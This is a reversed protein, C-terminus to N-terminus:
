VVLTRAFSLLNTNPPVNFTTLFRKKGFRDYKLRAAFKEPGVTKIKKIYNTKPDEEKVTEKKMIVKLPARGPFIIEQLALTNVNNTNKVAGRTVTQIGDYGMKKAIRTLISFVALDLMENSNRAYGSNTINIPKVKFLNRYTAKEMIKKIDSNILSNVKNEGWGEKAKYHKKKMAKVMDKGIPTDPVMPLMADLSKKSLVLIKLPRTPTFTLVPGYKAAYEKDPTVYSVNINNNLGLFQINQNTGHYLVNRNPILVKEKFM